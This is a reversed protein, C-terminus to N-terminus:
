PALAPAAATAEAAGGVPPGDVVKDVTLIWKGKIRKWVQVTDTHKELMATRHYWGISVRVAALDEGRKWDVHKVAYSTYYVEKSIHEANAMWELRISTAVFGAAIDYRGWHVGENFKRIAEILQERPNTVGGAVCGVCLVAVLGAAVLSSARFFTRNTTM